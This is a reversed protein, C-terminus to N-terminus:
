KKKSRRRGKRGLAPPSSENPGTPADSGSADDRGASTRQAAEKRSMVSKSQEQNPSTVPGEGAPNAEGLPGWHAVSSDMTTLERHLINLLTQLFAVVMPGVLIGIPGLAKVGGLVSLLALLPHLRSRGHLVIPKIVNDAMSIVLFGYVALFIAAVTQEEYFFLWLTAPVWVAAAGVFPVMALVTTLVTLVAISQLGSLWYGFGGLIGQVIASLLTAVVVARSISEFEILLEHEYRDDLPSLRMITTVMNPGDVLFFYMCVILISTGILLQAIFATTRGGVSFLFDRGRELVVIPIQQLEEETPNALYKIWLPVSGGAISKKAAEYAIFLNEIAVGDLKDPALLIQPREAISESSSPEAQRPSPAVAGTRAASPQSDEDPGASPPDSTESKESKEDASSNEDEASRPSPKVGYLAWLRARELEDAQGGDVMSAVVSKLAQDLDRLDTFRLEKSASPSSSSGTLMSVSSVDLNRAKALIADISRLQEAHPLRLLPFRDRLRDLRESLQAPGVRLVMQSGEVIAFLSALVIPVMVILTVSLTTLLASLRERGGCKVLIWMHVPRFIIVLLAALFVPLLFGVMVQYFLFGIVIIIGILVLFSILRSMTLGSPANTRAM